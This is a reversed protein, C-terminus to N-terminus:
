NTLNDIKARIPSLVLSNNLVSIWYFTIKIPYFSQISNLSFFIRFRLLGRKRTCRFDLSHQSSFSLYVENNARKSLRRFNGLYGLWARSLAIDKIWLTDFVFFCLRNNEFVQTDDDLQSFFFSKGSILHLNNIFIWIIM